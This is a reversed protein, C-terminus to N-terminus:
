TIRRATPRLRVCSGSCAEYNAARPKWFCRTTVAHDPSCLYHAAKSADSAEGEARNRNACDVNTRETMNAHVDAGSCSELSQRPKAATTSLPLTAGPERWHPRLPNRLTFVTGGAISACRAQKATTDSWKHTDYMTAPTGRLLTTTAARTAVSQPRTPLRETAAEYSATTEQMTTGEAHTKKHCTLESRAM